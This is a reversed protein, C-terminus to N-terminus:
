VVKCLVIYTQLDATPLVAVTDGAKLITEVTCKEKTISTNNISVEKNHQLLDANVKLNYKELLLDGVKIKLSNANLVTGFQISPPNNKEGAEEMAKVLSVFPDQKM